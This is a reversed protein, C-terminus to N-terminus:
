TFLFSVAFYVQYPQLHNSCLSEVGDGCMSGLIKTLSRELSTAAALVSIAGESLHTVGEM